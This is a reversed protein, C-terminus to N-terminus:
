VDHVGVTAGTEKLIDQKSKGEKVLDLAQQTRRGFVKTLHEVRVKSM